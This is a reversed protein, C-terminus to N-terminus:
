KYVGDVLDENEELILTAKKLQDNTEFSIEYLGLAGPGSVIDGDVESLLDSVESVISTKAFRVKVVYDDTKSSAMEYRASGYDTQRDIIPTVLGQWLIIAAATSAAAKWLPLKTQWVSTKKISDAEVARSLRGWGFEGPFREQSTGKEAIQKQLLYEARLVDSAEIALRIEEMRSSDLRGKIFAQLEESDLKENNAM